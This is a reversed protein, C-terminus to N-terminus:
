FDIWNEENQSSFFQGTKNQVVYNSIKRSRLNKLDILGGGEGEKLRGEGRHGRQAYLDTFVAFIYGFFLM